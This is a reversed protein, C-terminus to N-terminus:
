LETKAVSKVISSIVNMTEARCSSGMNLAIEGVNVFPNRIRPVRNTTRSVSKAGSIDIVSQVNYESPQSFAPAIAVLKSESTHPKV